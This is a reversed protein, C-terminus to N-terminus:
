GGVGCWIVGDVYDMERLKPQQEIRFRPFKSVHFGRQFHAEFQPADFANKM